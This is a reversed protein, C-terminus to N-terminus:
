KMSRNSFSALCVLVQMRATEIFHLGGNDIQKYIHRPSECMAMALNEVAIMPSTEICYPCQRSEVDEGHSVRWTERQEFSMEIRSTKM